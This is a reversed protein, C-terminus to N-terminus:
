FSQGLGPFPCARNAEMEQRYLNLCFYFYNIGKQFKIPAVVSLIVVSLMIANLMVISMMVVTLM